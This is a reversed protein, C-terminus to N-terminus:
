DLSDQQSTTTEQLQIQCVEAFQQQKTNNKQDEGNCLGREKSDGKGGNNERETKYQGNRKGDMGNAAGMIVMAAEMQRGKSRFRLELLEM